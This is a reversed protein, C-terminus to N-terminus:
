SFRWLCAPSMSASRWFINFILSFSSRCSFSSFLFASLMLCCRCWSVEALWCCDCLLQDSISAVGLVERLEDVAVLDAHDLIPVVLELHELVFVEPVDCGQDELVDARKEVGLPAGHVQADVVFGDDVPEFHRLLPDVLQQQLDVVVAFDVHSGREDRLLVLDPDDGDLIPFLEPQVHDFDLHEGGCVM